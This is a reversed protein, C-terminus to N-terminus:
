HSAPAHGGPAHVVRSRRLRLRAIVFLVEVIGLGVAPGPLQYVSFLVVLAGVGFINLTCVRRMLKDRLGTYRAILLNLLGTWLLAISMTLSLSDHIDMMSPNGLGLDFRYAQMATLLASMVLDDSPASFHVIARLLAVLILGISATSFLRHGKRFM